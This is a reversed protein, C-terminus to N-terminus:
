TAAYPRKTRADRLAGAWWTLQDLLVKAAANCGDHDKPRGHADFQGGAGHFSVTDRVSTAHLEAFVQRLQEVARLGGAMGGYSVFAVPKANWESHALDISPRSSPAPYGHNYEPTVVVFADAADIRAAYAAVAASPRAPMVAPLDFDVLDIVDPRLADRQRAQTVFWRAVTPGFRGERTSGTIIAVRLPSDSM